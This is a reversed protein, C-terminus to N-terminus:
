SFANGAMVSLVFVLVGGPIDFIYHQKTFLTSLTIIGASLWAAAAYQPFTLALYYGCMLSVFVHASPFGNTDGDSKYVFALLRHMLTSAEISPRAVGNPWIYWVVIAVVYAIIMSTLMATIHPTNWLRTIALIIFPFYAIYPIVFWPVLPIYKDFASEFYYKSKRRNLPLYMSKVALLMILLIVNM